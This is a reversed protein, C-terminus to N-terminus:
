PTTTSDTTGTGGAVNFAAGWNGQLGGALLGVITYALIAIALGIAANTVTSKGAEAGKPDSVNMWQYGGYVIFIVAVAVSIFTLFQAVGLIFKSITTKPDDTGSFIAGPDGIGPCGGEPCTPATLTSAFVDVNGFNTVAVVGVVLTALISLPLILKKLNNFISM